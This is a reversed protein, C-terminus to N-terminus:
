MIEGWEMENSGGLEGEVANTVLLCRHVNITVSTFLLHASLGEWYPGLTWPKDQWWQGARPVLLAQRRGKHYSLKVFPAQQPWLTTQSETVGWQEVHAKPSPSSWRWVRQWSEETLPLGTQSPHHGKRISLGMFRPLSTGGLRWGSILGGGVPGTVWALLMWTSLSTTGEIYIMALKRPAAICVDTRVTPETAMTGKMTARDSEILPAEEWSQM